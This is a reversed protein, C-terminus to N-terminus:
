AAFVLAAEPAHSSTARIGGGSVEYTWVMGSWRLEVHYTVAVSSAPFSLWAEFVTSKSALGRFGMTEFGPLSGM